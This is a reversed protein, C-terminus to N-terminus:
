AVGKLARIGRLWGAIQNWSTFIQTVLRGAVNIALM